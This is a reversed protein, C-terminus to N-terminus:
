AEWLYFYIQPHSLVPHNFHSERHGEAAESSMVLLYRNTKLVNWGSGERSRSVMIKALETEAKDNEQDICGLKRRWTGESVAWYM